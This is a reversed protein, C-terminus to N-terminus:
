ENGPWSTSSVAGMDVLQSKSGQYLVKEWERLRRIVSMFETFEIWRDSLVNLADFVHGFANSTQTVKGLSVRNDSAYLLPAVLLYPLLATIQEYGGLWLSFVAFRNYLKLYNFQLERIMDRFVLSLSSVGYQRVPSRDVVTDPDFPSAAVTNEEQLVLKKRLNAEVKQNEIELAVLKWGLVVSVATGVLAVGVSIMVLWAGPRPTPHISEGLQLLVPSFVVLTLVCDLLVICITAVGRAFRQTDESVRQAGNEIHHAEPRWDCLYCEVLSIRWSLVWRNTVLKFLPHVVVSPICLLAFEGLL